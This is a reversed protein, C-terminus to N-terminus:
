IEIMEMEMEALCLNKFKDGILKAGSIYKTTSNYRHYYEGAFIYVYKDTTLSFM